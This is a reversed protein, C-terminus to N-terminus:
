PGLWTELLSRLYFSLLGIGTDKTNGNQARSQLELGLILTRPQTWIGVGGVVEMLLGLHYQGQGKVREDM